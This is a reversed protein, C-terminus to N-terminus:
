IIYKVQTPAPDFHSAIIKEEIEKKDHKSLFDIIKNHEVIQVGLCFIKTQELGGALSSSSRHTSMLEITVTNRSGPSSGSSTRSKITVPRRCAKRSPDKTSAIGHSM